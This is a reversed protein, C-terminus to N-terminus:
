LISCDHHSSIIRATKMVHLFHDLVSGILDILMRQHWNNVGLAYLMTDAPITSVHALAESGMPVKTWFPSALMAHGVDLSLM